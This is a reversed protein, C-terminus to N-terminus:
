LQLLCTLAILVASRSKDPANFLFFTWVNSLRKHVNHPHDIADPRVICDWKGDHNLVARSDDRGNRRAYNERLHMRTFPTIDVGV